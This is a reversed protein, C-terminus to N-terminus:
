VTEKTRHIDNDGLAVSLILFSFVASFHEEMSSSTLGHVALAVGTLVVLPIMESDHWDRKWGMRVWEYLLWILLLLGGFGWRSLSLIYINFPHDHKIQGPHVWDPHKIAVAHAAKPYGGTGVGFYPSHKWVELGILWLGYREEIQIAQGLNHNYFYHFANWTRELSGRVSGFFLTGLVIGIIALPFVLHWRGNAHHKLHMWIVLMLSLATVLYGSRGMALFVMIWSWAVMGWAGYRRWSKQSWGWHALWAAWLGYVFGFAIHGIHGTADAAYSGDTTTTVFGYKQLVCYGLHVALGVSLSLMFRQRWARKGFVTIGLPPLLWFWHHMLVHMGRTPDISWALGTVVMAIYIVLALSFRKQCRWLRKAGEWWIGSLISLALGMGLFLNSGAVSFPFLLAAFCLSLGVGNRPLLVANEDRLVGAFSM